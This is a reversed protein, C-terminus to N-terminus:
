VLGHIRGWLHHNVMFNWFIKRELADTCNMSTRLSLSLSIVVVGFDKKALLLQKTDRCVYVDDNSKCFWVVSFKLALAHNM